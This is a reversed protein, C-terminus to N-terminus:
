VMAINTMVMPYWIGRFCSNAPNVMRLCVRKSNALFARSALRPIMKGLHADLLFWTGSTGSCLQTDRFITYVGLIRLIAFGALPNLVVRNRITRPLGLEKIDSEQKRTKSGCDAVYKNTKRWCASWFWRGRLTNWRIPQLSGPSFGASNTAVQTPLQWPQSHKWDGFIGRFIPSRGGLFIGIVHV